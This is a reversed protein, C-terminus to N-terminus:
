KETTTLQDSDQPKELDAILRDIHELQQKIAEVTAPDNAVAAPDNLKNVIWQSKQEIAQQVDAPINEITAVKNQVAELQKEIAFKAKEPANAINDIANQAKKLQQRIRDELSKVGTDATNVGPDATGTTTSKAAIRAAMAAAQDKYILRQIDHFIRYINPDKNLSSKLLDIAQEADKGYSDFIDLMGDIELASGKLDRLKDMYKKRDNGGITRIANMYQEFADAADRNTADPNQSKFYDKYRKAMQDRENPTIRIRNYVWDDFIDLKKQDKGIWASIKDVIPFVNPAIQDVIKSLGSINAGKSGAAALLSGIFGRRTMKPGAAEGIIEAIKM